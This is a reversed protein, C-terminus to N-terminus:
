ILASLDGCYFSLNAKRYQAAAPKLEAQSPEDGYGIEDFSM